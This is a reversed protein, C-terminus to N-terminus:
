RAPAHVDFWTAPKPFLHRAARPAKFPKRFPKWDDEAQSLRDLVAYSVTPNVGLGTHSAYVEINESTPGTRILCTQWRVVGDTRTYISTSPMSLPPRDIEPMQLMDLDGDHLHEVQSWVPKAASGDGEVMQIPSGMTIVQRVADPYERALLRAFLGGLSWGILTVKRDHHDHLMELRDRMGSVIHDTPGINRGLRWGHAWYGHSRLTWRLPLTSVDTATFGPLVLVPHQDGRGFKRLLGSSAVFATLEIPFMGEM